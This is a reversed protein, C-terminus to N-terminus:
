LWTMFNKTIKNPFDDVSFNLSSFFFSFFLVKLTKILHLFISYNRLFDQWQCLCYVRTYHTDHSQNFFWPLIVDISIFTTWFVSSIQHTPWVTIQVRVWWVPIMMIWVIINILILGIFSRLLFDLVVGKKQM